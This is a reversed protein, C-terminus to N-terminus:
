AAASRPAPRRCYRRATRACARTGPRAAASRDRFRRRSGARFQASAANRKGTCHTLRGIEIEAAKGAPDGAARDLDARRFRRTGTPGRWGRGACRSGPRRDRRAGDGALRHRQREGVLDVGRAAVHEGGDGLPGFDGGFDMRPQQPRRFGVHMRARGIDDLEAGAGGVGIDGLHMVEDVDVGELRRRRAGSPRLSIPRAVRRNSRGIIM